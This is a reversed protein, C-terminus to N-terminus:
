WVQNKHQYKTKEQFSLSNTCHHKYAPFPIVHNMAASDRLLNVQSKLLIKSRTGYNMLSHM